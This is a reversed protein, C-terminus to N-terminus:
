ASSPPVFPMPTQGGCWADLDLDGDAAQRAFEAVYRARFGLKAEKLDGESVAALRESTLFTFAEGDGACPEGFMRCLNAVM